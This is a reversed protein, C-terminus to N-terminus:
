EFNDLSAQSTASKIGNSKAVNWIPDGGYFDGNSVSERNGISYPLQLKPAYFNNLVIGHNDPYLGTAISYHNPFTKTPFCPKLSQAMTGAKALSDFTPTSAFNCYDWRFGDLSLIILYPKEEAHNKDGMNDCGSLILISLFVLVSSKVTNYMCHLNVISLPLFFAGM